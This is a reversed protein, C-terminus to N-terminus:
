THSPLFYFSVLFGRGPLNTYSVALVYVLHEHQIHSRIRLARLFEREAEGKLALLAFESEAQARLLLAVIVHLIELHELLHFLRRPAGEAPLRQGRSWVLSRVALFPVQVALLCVLVVTLFVGTVVELLALALVQLLFHLTALM